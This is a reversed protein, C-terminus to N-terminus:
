LINKLNKLIILEPEQRLISESLTDNYKGELIFAHTRLVDKVKRYFDPNTVQELNTIGIENFQYGDNFSFKSSIIHNNELNIGNNNVTNEQIVIQNGFPRKKTPWFNMLLTTFMLKLPILAIGTEKGHCIEAMIRSAYFM